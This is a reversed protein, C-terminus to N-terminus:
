AYPMSKRSKKSCRLQRITSYQKLMNNDKLLTILYYHIGIEWVSSEETKAELEKMKFEVDIKCNHRETAM